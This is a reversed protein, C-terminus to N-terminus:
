EIITIEKALKAERPSRDNANKAKAAVVDDAIDDGIELVYDDDVQVIDAVTMTWGPSGSPSTLTTREWRGDVWRECVPTPLGSDSDQEEAIGAIITRDKSKIKKM